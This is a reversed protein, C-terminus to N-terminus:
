KKLSALTAFPLIKATKTTSVDANQPLACLEHRPSVPLSLIVEDEILALVDLEKQAVIFERSDDELQEQTLDNETEVLELLSNLQLPYPLPELCRQCRLFLNAEVRLLLHPH